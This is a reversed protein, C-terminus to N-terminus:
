VENSLFKEVGGGRARRRERRGGEESGAIGGPGGLICFKLAFSQAIKAGTMKEFFIYM